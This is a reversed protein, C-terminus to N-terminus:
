EARTATVGLGRFRQVRQEVLADESCESLEALVRGLAEAVTAAVARHDRHAGGSPEVVIEDIVGLALLDKATPRLAEAAQVTRGQERYLIASAAEPSIVSYVAHELMLVRNGVGIALAGGSGGEGIIICVVPVRLSMMAELNFAIAEAQGREEAGMGPYAGPTDILTIIPLGFREALRMLRLAKRYGEPRPMGFNRRMNQQTGRGKQTGILMANREGLRVLGAVIAGDDAFHRDGLLEIFEDFVLGAYDLAYPRQPHRSVQVKDWRTLDKILRAELEGHVERLRRLPDELEPHDAVMPEITDIREALDAAPKEFALVHTKNM